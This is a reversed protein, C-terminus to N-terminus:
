LLTDYKQQTNSNQDKDLQLLYEWSYIGTDHGDKWTIQIAYEGVLKIGKIEYMGPLVMTLKPPRYTHLLITEGKCGACPCEDRLYKLQISTSSDDSWAINLKSDNVKIQKPRM